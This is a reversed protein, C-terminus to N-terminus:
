STTFIDIAIQIQFLQTFDLVQIFGSCTSELVVVHLTNTSEVSVPMPISRDHLVQVMSIWKFDM